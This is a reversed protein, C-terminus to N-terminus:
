GFWAAECRNRFDMQVSWGYARLGMEADQLLSHRAWNQHEFQIGIMLDPDSCHERFTVRHPNLGPNLLPCRVSIGLIM